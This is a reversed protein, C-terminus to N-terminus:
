MQEHEKLIDTTHTFVFLQRSWPFLIGNRSVFTPIEIQLFIDSIDSTARTCPLKKKIFRMRHKEFDKTTFIQSQINVVSLLIFKLVILWVTM